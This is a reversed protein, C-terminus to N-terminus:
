IRMSALYLFIHLACLFQSFISSNAHSISIIKITIPLLLNIVVIHILLSLRNSDQGEAMCEFSALTNYM